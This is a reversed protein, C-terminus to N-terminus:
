RSKQKHRLADYEDENIYIVNGGKPNIEHKYYGFVIWTADVEKEPMSAGGDTFIIKNPCSDTFAEVAPDFNTGGGGEIKLENIDDENRIDHFGYFKTDFFGVKIKNNKAITLCETLFNKILEESVSGSTDIVIECESADDDVLDDIVVGNEVEESTRWDPNSQYNIKLLDQWCIPSEDIGEIDDITGRGSGSGYPSGSGGDGDLGNKLYDDDKRKKEEENEKFEKNEDPKDNNLKGEEQHKKAAEEWRSHDDHGVNNGNKNEPKDDKPKEDDGTGKGDESKDDKPKEDDDKSDSPSKKGDNKDDSDDNNNGSSPADIPRGNGRKGSDEADKPKEEQKKEEEEKLFKEYLEEATQNLAGEVDVCGKVFKLGNNRLYDNIVADTALNWYYMNKDLCRDIHNLAVHLVEHAFTFLQEEEDLSEMFQKNFYLKEGNTCATEITDDLEIPLKDVISEFHPYKIKFRVIIKNLDFYAM